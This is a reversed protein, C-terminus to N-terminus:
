KAGSGLESPNVPTKEYTALPFSVIDAAGSVTRPFARALGKLTGGTLGWFPNKTDRTVQIVTKPIETWGFILNQFGREAKMGAGRSSGAAKGGSKNAPTVNSTVEAYAICAVSMVLLVILALTGIKM